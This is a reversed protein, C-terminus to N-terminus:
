IFSYRVDKAGMSCAADCIRSELSKERKKVEKDARIPIKRM